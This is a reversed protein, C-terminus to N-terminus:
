ATWTRVCRVACWGGYRSRWWRRHQWDAPSCGPLRRKAQYIDCRMPRMVTRMRRSTAGDGGSHRIRHSSAETHGHCHSRARFWWIGYCDRALRVAVYSMEITVEALVGCGGYSNWWLFQGCAGSVAQGPLSAIEDRRMGDGRLVDCAMGLAQWSHQVQV